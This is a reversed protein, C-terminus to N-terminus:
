GCKDDEIGGLSKLLDEESRPADRIYFGETLKQNECAKVIWAGSSAHLRIVLRKQTAIEDLEEMRRSFGCNKKRARSVQAKMLIEPSKEEQREKM